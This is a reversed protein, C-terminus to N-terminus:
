CKQIRWQRCDRQTSNAALNQLRTETSNFITPFTRYAHSLHLVTHALLKKANTHVSHQCNTVYKQELCCREIHMKGIRM